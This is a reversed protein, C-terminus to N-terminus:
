RIMKFITKLVEDIVQEDGDLLQDKVCSKMHKELLLKAVGNLASQISSIQNLVDDCYADEEIMRKIGRVQGEIRNLRAVLQKVTQEDQWRKKRATEM